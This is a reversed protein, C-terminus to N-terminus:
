RKGDVGATTLLKDGLQKQVPSGFYVRQALYL